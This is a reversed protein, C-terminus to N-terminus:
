YYEDGGDVGLLPRLSLLKRPLFDEDYCAVFAKVEM